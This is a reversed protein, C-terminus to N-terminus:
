LFNSARFRKQLVLIEFSKPIGQGNKATPFRIKPEGLQARPNVLPTYGLPLATTKSIM